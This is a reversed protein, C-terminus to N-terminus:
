GLTVSLHGRHGLSALWNLLIDTVIPGVLLPEQGSIAVTFLQQQGFNDKFWFICWFLVLHEYILAICYLHVDM